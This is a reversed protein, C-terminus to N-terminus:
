PLETKPQYLGTTKDLELTKSQGLIIELECNSIRDLNTQLQEAIEITEHLLQMLEKVGEVKVPLQSQKIDM